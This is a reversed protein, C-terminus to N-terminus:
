DSKLLRIINHICTRFGVAMLLASGCLLYLNMSM